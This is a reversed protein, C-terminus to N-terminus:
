KKGERKKREEYEEELLDASSPINCLEVEIEAFAVRSGPAPRSSLFTEWNKRSFHEGHM